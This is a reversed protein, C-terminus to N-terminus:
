SQETRTRIEYRPAAPATHSLRDFLVEHVLVAGSGGPQRGCTLTQVIGRVLMVGTTQAEDGMGFAFFAVRNDRSRQLDEFIQSMSARRPGIRELAGAGANQNLKGLGKKAAGTLSLSKRQRHRYLIAHPHNEQRPRRGRSHRALLFDFTGNGTFALHEEAPTVYGGVVRTQGLAGLLDLRHHTLDENRAARVREILVREFALEVDDALFGPVRHLRELKAVALAEIDRRHRRAGDDVLAHQEGVLDALVVEVEVVRRHNRGQRQYMLTERGVGKRGPIKRM